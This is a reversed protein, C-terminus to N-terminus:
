KDDPVRLPTLGSPKHVFYPSNSGVAIVHAGKAYFRFTNKHFGRVDLDWMKLCKTIKLWPKYDGPKAQHFYVVLTSGEMGDAIFREDCPSLNTKVPTGAAVLASLMKEYEPAVMRDLDRLTVHPVANIKHHGFYARQFYHNMNVGSAGFHFTRSVDPIICERGKIQSPMRMWMDWDWRKEAAPWKSELEGKYLRRSLVWGLGPMTEVRYVASPDIASHEYGQDNWASVCYLTPDLDLLPVTQRFYELLDPASDVDEEMVLIFPATPHLSDFMRTLSQRYHNCIRGNKEGRPKSEYVRLGMVRVLSTVEPFSGDVHVSVMREDAGYAMLVSQISRRLYQPRNGAIIAVPIESRTGDLFPRTKPATGEVSACDCLSGYGEYQACFLRRMETQPGPPWACEMKRPHELSIWVQADLPSGWEKLSPSKSHKEVIPQVRGKKSVLLWHDRWGFDGLEQAGLMNGITQRKESSLRFSGEDKIAMVVIRDRHVNTLFEGLADEAGDTYTDFLQRAMVQGTVENVVVVHLGRTKVETDNFHIAYEGDVMVFVHNFSSKVAISVVGSDSRLGSHKGEGRHGLKGIRRSEELIFVVNVLMMLVFVAGVVFSILRATSLGPLGSQGSPAM